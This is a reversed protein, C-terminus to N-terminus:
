FEIENNGEKKLEQNLMPIDVTKLKMWKAELAKMKAESNNVGDIAQSTPPMDSEQLTNFLGAFSSYLKHFNADKSGPETGAIFSIKKDLDQLKKTITNENKSLLAEIQEHISQAEDLAKRLQIRNNYCLYSLSEQKQLDALSTTVRPDM